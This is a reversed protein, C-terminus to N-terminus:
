RRAAPKAAPKPRPLTIQLTLSSPTMPDLDLDAGLIALSQHVAVRLGEPDAIAKHLPSRCQIRLRNGSQNVTVSLPKDAKFHLAATRMVHAFAQTDLTVNLDPPVVPRLNRHGTDSTMAQVIMTYLAKADITQPEPSIAGLELGREYIVYDLLAAAEHSRPAAVATLSETASKRKIM